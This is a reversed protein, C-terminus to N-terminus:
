RLPVKGQLVEGYRVKGKPRANITGKLDIKISTNVRLQRLTGTKPVSIGTLDLHTFSTRGITFHLYRTGKRYHM